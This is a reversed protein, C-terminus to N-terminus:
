TTKKTPVNDLQQFYVSFEILIAHENTPGNQEYAVPGTRRNQQFALLCPVESTGEPVTSSRTGLSIVLNMPFFAAGLEVIIM